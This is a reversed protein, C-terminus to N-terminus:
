VLQLHVKLRGYYVWEAPALRNRRGLQRHGLPSLSLHKASNRHDLPPRHPREQQHDVQTQFRSERVIPLATPSLKTPPQSVTPPITIVHTTEETKKALRSSTSGMALVVKATKKIPIEATETEAEIMRGNRLAATTTAATPM